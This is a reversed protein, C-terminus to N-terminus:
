GAVRDYGAMKLPGGVSAMIRSMVDKPLQPGAANRSAEDQWFELFLFRQPEKRDQLAMSGQSGAIGKVAEGLAELAERLADERGAHATMDYSHAIAM